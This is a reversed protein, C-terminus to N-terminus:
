KLIMLFYSLRIFSLKFKLMRILWKTLKVQGQHDIYYFYERIKKNQGDSQGQIYNVHRIQPESFRRYGLLIKTISNRLIM